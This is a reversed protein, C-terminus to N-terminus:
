DNFITLAVGSTRDYYRAFLTDGDRRELGELQFLFGAQREDLVAVFDPWEGPLLGATSAETVLKGDELTVASKDITTM